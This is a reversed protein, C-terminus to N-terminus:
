RIGLHDALLCGLTLRLTSGEANGVLHDRLRDHLTRTGPTRAGKAEKPGIGVYLLVQGEASRHCEATPVGPPIEDFYWAYVGASKPVSAFSKVIEAASWLRAPRLLLTIAADSESLNASDDM